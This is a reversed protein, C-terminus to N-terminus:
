VLDLANLDQHETQFFPIGKPGSPMPCL